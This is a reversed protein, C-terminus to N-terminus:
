GYSLAGQVILRGGYGMVLVSALGLIFTGMSTLMSQTTLTAKVNEFIRLVGHAM